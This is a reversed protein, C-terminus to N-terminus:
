LKAIKLGLKRAAAAMRVDFTALEAAHRQAIALHIADPTRLGLDFQRMATAAAQIDDSETYTKSVFTPIWGEILALATDAAAPTLSKMRVMRGVASVTEADAFDSTMLAEPNRGVFARAKKTFHDVAVLAVLVNADLYVSL